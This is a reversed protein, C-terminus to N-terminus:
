TPTTNSSARAATQWRLYDRLSLAGDATVLLLGALLALSTRRAQNADTAGLAFLRMIGYGALLFVAPAIVLVRLHNPPLPTGSVALIGPWIMVAITWALARPATKGWALVFGALFVARCVLCNAPSRSHQAALDPRGHHRGDEPARGTPVLLAVVAGPALLALGAALASLRGGPQPLHRRGAAACGPRCDGALAIVGRWRVTRRWDILLVVALIPVFRAAVYTYQMLGLLAGAAIYPRLDDRQRCRWLLLLFIPFLALFLNARYSIRSLSVTWFTVAVFGAGILAARDDLLRRGLAFTGAVAVTGAMAAPLRLAFANNGLVNVFLSLLYIYLPERGNNAPFFLPTM